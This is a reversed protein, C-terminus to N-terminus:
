REAAEGYCIAAPRGPKKRLLGELGCGRASSSRNVALNARHVIAEGGLLGQFM